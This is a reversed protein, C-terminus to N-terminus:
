SPFAGSSIAISTGRVEEPILGLKGAIGNRVMGHVMRLYYVSWERETLKLFGPNFRREGHHQSRKGAGTAIGESMVAHPPYHYSVGMSRQPTPIRARQHVNVTMIFIYIHRNLYKALPLRITQLDNSM